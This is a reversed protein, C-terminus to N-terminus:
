RTCGKLLLEIEKYDKDTNKLKAVKLVSKCLEIYGLVDEKPMSSIHKKVTEIDGREIPGTLSEKIGKNFINKVNECVLPKLADLSEKESLGMSKLYEVSNNCLGVFLNSVNVASLHYLGKKSSDIEFYFNGLKDMLKLVQEKKPGNGEISFTAEKLNKYSEYKNAFPYMPHISYVDAGFKLNEDFVNTSLVGSTHCIIKGNINCEKIENWIKSIEGDPTTIFICDSNEVCERITRFYNSKTFESAEIASNINKSFYGSLEINNDKFYKGM